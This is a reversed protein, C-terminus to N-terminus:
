EALSEVQAKLEDALRKMHRYKLWGIVLGVTFGICSSLILTSDAKDFIEGFFSALVGCGLVIGVARIRAMRKRVALVARMADVVPQSVYDTMAVNDAFDYSLAAMLLGFLGYVIAVWLQFHLTTVLFPALATVCLGGLANRKYNQALRHQASTIKGAKIESMVRDSDAALRDSDFSLQQWKDKLENIDM